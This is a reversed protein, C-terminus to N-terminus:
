GESADVAAATTAIRAAGVTSVRRSEAGRWAMKPQSRIHGSLGRRLGAYRPEGGGGEPMGGSKMNPVAFKGRGTKQVAM